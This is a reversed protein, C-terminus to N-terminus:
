AKSLRKRIRACPREVWYHILTAVLLAACFALIAILIQNGNWADHISTLIIYHCLYLSYSLVGLFRVSGLNLFRVLPSSRYQIAAIFLPTLAVGQLSYRFTERFEDNRTLFTALLLLTSVPLLWRMHRLLASYLPDNLMPNLVIAIICGFLISDFRTDTAFFTRNFDAHLGYILLCRWLLAAGCLCLLVLAQRAASFRRLMWLYLVPFILYFHEEVALSWLVGSGPITPALTSYIQYYNSVQFIQSLTGLLPIGPGSKDFHSLLAGLALVIYLPPLIRFVRRLYFSRLSIERYRSYEMRLLTTILYGSLLFFVSVGFGGPIYDGLGAHAVFVLLFSLARIGDLSPIYFSGPAAITDPSNSSADHPTEASV